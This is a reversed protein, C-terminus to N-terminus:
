ALTIYAVKGNYKSAIKYKSNKSVEKLFEKVERMDANDVYIITKKNFNPELMKFIPFYLNKWGDLLLLDISENHNKLTELANGVRVEILNDVAAKKFNKIAKEAKSAILETTIIHGNTAIVGEALFLTSIGFSTGFEIINKIKNAKILQVLDTGQKKSISLYVDKFDIAQIPRFVSKSLGKMIKLRDSKSDNFLETLTTAIHNKQTIIM